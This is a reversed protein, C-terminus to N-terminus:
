SSIEWGVIMRETFNEAASCVNDGREDHCTKPKLNGVTAHSGGTAASAPCQWKERWGARVGGGNKDSRRQSPERQGCEFWRFDSGALNTGKAVRRPWLIKTPHKQCPANQKLPVGEM